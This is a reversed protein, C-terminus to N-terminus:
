ALQQRTESKVFRIGNRLMDNHSMDNCISFRQTLGHDHNQGTQGRLWFM